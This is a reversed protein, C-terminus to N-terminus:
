FLGQSMLVRAIEVQGLRTATLLARNGDQRVDDATVLREEFLVRVVEVNGEAVASVLVDIMAADLSTFGWKVVERLADVHRHLVYWLAHTRCLDHVTLGWGHLRALAAGYQGVQVGEKLVHAAVDGSGRGCWSAVSQLTTPKTATVVPSAPTLLLELVARLM